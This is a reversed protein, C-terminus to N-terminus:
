SNALWRTEVMVIQIGGWLIGAIEPSAASMTTFARTFADLHKLAPSLIDMYRAINRQRYCRDEEVLTALFSDYDLLRLQGAYRKKRLRGRQCDLAKEWELKTVAQVSSAM